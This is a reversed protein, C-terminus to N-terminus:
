REYRNKLYKFVVINNGLSGADTNGLYAAVHLLMTKSREDQMVISSHEIATELSLLDKLEIIERIREIENIFQVRQQPNSGNASELFPTIINRAYYCHVFFM